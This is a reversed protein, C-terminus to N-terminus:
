YLLFGPGIRGDNAREALMLSYILVQSHHEISSVGNGYSKGTKLELPMVLQNRQRRRRTSKPLIGIGDDGSHSPPSSSALFSVDIRGKMGLTPTWVNEEIDRTANFYVPEAMQKGANKGRGFDVFENAEGAKGGESSDSDGGDDKLTSLPSPKLHAIPKPDPGMIHTRIWTAINDLYPSLEEEFRELSCHMGVLDMCFFGILQRNESAQFLEHAVRGVTMALNSGTARFRDAFLAKRACYLSQAFATGSILTHPEALALRAGSVGTSSAADFELIQALRATAQCM